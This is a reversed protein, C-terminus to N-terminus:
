SVLMRVQQATQLNKQRTAGMILFLDILAWVGLGGLTLLKGVGLGINGIYFRDVGLPGFFLGLVLAITPDKTAGSLNMDFSDRKEPPVTDRISKVQQLYLMSNM